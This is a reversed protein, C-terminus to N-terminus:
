CRTRIGDYQVWREQANRNCTTGTCSVYDNQYISCPLSVTCTGTGDGIEDVASITAITVFVSFILKKIM